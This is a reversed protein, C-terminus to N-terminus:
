QAKAAASHAQSKLEEQHAKDVNQKSKLDEDHAVELDGAKRAKTAKHMSHLAQIRHELAKVAHDNALTFHVKNSPNITLVM